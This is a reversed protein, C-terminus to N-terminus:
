GCVLEAYNDFASGKRVGLFRYAEIYPINGSKAECIVAEAFPHSIGFLKTNWFDGGSNDKEKAAALRRLAEETEERIKGVLSSSIYRLHKLRTAMALPSIHFINSLRLTQLYAEDSTNWEKTIYQLPAFFEAAAENCITEAQSQEYLETIISDEGIFLHFFEHMISFLRGSTSDNSNIFIIPAYQDVLAFARFENIELKRKTSAGVIGSFMILIGLSEMKERLLKLAASSDRVSKFWLFDLGLIKRAENVLTDIGDADRFRGIFGIPEYGQSLRYEHMWQSNRDMTNLVDALNKSPTRTLKSNITRFEVAFQNTKPPESLLLHGFPVHLFSSLKELQSLSPAKKQALWDGLHPFRLELELIDVQSEKIFWRLVDPNVPIYVKEM